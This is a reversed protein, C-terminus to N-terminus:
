KKRAVCFLHHGMGLLEQRKDQPYSSQDCSAALMSTSALERIECGTEEFRDERETYEDYADSIAGPDYTM